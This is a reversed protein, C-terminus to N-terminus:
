SMVRPHLFIHALEQQREGCANRNQRRTRQRAVGIADQGARSSTVLRIARGDVFSRHILRGRDLVHDVRTPHDAGMEPVSAPMMALDAEPRRLMPGMVLVVMM